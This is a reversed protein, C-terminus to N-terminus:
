RIVQKRKTMFKKEESKAINTLFMNNYVTILRNTYITLLKM